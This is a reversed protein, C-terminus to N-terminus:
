FYQGIHNQSQKARRLSSISSGFALIVNKKIIGM